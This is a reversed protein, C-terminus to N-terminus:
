CEAGATLVRRTRHSINSTEAKTVSCTEGHDLREELM